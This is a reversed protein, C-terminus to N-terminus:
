NKDRAALLAAGLAGVMQCQAPIILAEGLEEALVQAFHANQAVGGCFMVKSKLGVQRLLAAIREAVSRHAAALLDARSEGQASLSIMESEAFVACTTSVKLRKQSTAALTALEDLEIQFSHALMELFRGTGAACKDNMAFDVVKGQADVRIVKADQGGIDIITCVEPELRHAGAGYCIIESVARTACAVHARGYGTAVVPLTLESGGGLGQRCVELVFRIAGLVDGATATKASSLMEGAANVVVMETTTSGVDIGAFFQNGSGIMDMETRM